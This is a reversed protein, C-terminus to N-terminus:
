ADTRRTAATQRHADAPASRGARRTVRRDDRRQDRWDRKPNRNPGTAVTASPDDAIRVIGNVVGVYAAGDPGITLAAWNNDYRLGTGTLIEFVLDGTRFDVAKLYYADINLGPKKGYVYILGSATSLRPVVSPAYVDNEWRTVCTRREADVDIRAMGSGTTQGRTFKLFFDFGANNDIILSNGYAILSNETASSGPLFVPLACVLRDDEALRDYVRVQVRPTSADAIAVYRGGFLTPTTGSGDDIQGAKAHGSPYTERWHLRVGHRDATFRYLARNSVVYVGDAATAFSNQIQEGALRYLHLDREPTVFGVVGDQTVFWINGSWDPLVASIPTALSPGLQIQEDAVLRDPNAVARIIHIVNASDAVVIRDQDDIYFYAGGSTNKIIKRIRLLSDTPRPALGYRARVALTEPDFWLVEPQAFRMCVSFMRGQSDFNATACEGAFFGLSASRVRAGTGTPGAWSTRQTAHSDSHMAAAPSAAMYPNREPPLDPLPAPNDRYREFEPLFRFGDAVMIPAPEQAEGVGVGCCLFILLWGTWNRVIGDEELPCRKTLLCHGSSAGNAWKDEDVTYFKCLPLSRRVGSKVRRRSLGSSPFM